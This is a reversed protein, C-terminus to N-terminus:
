INNKIMFYDKVFSGDFEEIKKADKAVNKVFHEHTILNILLNSSIFKQYNKKYNNQDYICSISFEYKQNKEKFILSLDNHLTNNRGIYYLHDFSNNDLDFYNILYQTLKEKDRSCEDDFELTKSYYHRSGGIVTVEYNKNTRLYYKKLLPNANIKTPQYFTINDKFREVVIGKSRKDYDDIPDGITVGFLTKTLLKNDRAQAQTNLAFCLCTIAICNRIFCIM